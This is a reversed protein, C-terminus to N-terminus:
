YFDDGDYLVKKNRLKIDYYEAKEDFFNNLHVEDRPPPNQYVDKALYSPTFTTKIPQENLISVILNNGLSDLEEPYILPRQDLQKSESFSKDDKKDAGKSKSASKTYITISKNGCRKSFDEKTQRDNSAIYIHVNCNDKIVPAVQDGYVINLQSYSQVILNFLINRGRAVTIIKDFNKPNVFTTM